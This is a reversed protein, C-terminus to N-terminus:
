FCLNNFDPPSADLGKVAENAEVLPDRVRAAATLGDAAERLPDTGALHAVNPVSVTADLGKVAESLDSMPDSRQAERAMGEVAERLPDRTRFGAGFGTLDALNFTGNLMDEMGELPPCLVCKVRVWGIESTTSARVTIALGNNLAPHGPQASSSHM